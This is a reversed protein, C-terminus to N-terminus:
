MISVNKHLIIYPNDKLDPFLEDVYSLRIKSARVHPQLIKNLHDM